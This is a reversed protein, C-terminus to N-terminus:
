GFHTSQPQTVNVVVRVSGYEDRGARLTNGNEASTDWEPGDLRWHPPRDDPFLQRLVEGVIVLILRASYGGASPCKMTGAAFPM